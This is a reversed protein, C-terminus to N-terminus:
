GGRNNLDISCSNHAEDLDTRWPKHFFTNNFYNAFRMMRLLKLVCRREKESYNTNYDSVYADEPEKGDSFIWDQVFKLALWERYDFDEQKLYILKDIDEATIGLRRGAATHANM